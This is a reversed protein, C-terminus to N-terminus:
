LPTASKSRAAHRRLVFEEFPEKRHAKDWSGYTAIYAKVDADFRAFANEGATANFDKRLMWYATGGVALAAALSALLLIGTLKSRLSLFPQIHFNDANM